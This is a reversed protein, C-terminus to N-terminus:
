AGIRGASGQRARGPVSALRRDPCRHAPRDAPIQGVLSYRVFPPATLPSWCAGAPWCPVREADLAYNVGLWFRDEIGEDREVVALPGVPHGAGLQVQPRPAASRDRELYWVPGREPLFACDRGELPGGPQGAGHGRDVRVSGANIGGHFDRDLSCWFAVPDPQHLLTEGGGSGPVVECPRPRVYEGLQGVPYGRLPRLARGTHRAWPEFQRRKKPVFLFDCGRRFM